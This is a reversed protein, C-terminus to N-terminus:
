VIFSLYSHDAVSPSWLVSQRSAWGGVRKREPAPPCPLWELKAVVLDTM